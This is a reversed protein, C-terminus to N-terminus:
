NAKNFNGSKLLAEVIDRTDALHEGAEYKTSLEAVKGARVDPTEKLSKMVTQFDMADRSLMLKDSKASVAAKKAPRSAVPQKDYVGYVKTVDYIKM